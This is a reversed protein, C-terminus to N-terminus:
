LGWQQGETNHRFCQSAHAYGWRDLYKIAAEQILTSTTGIWQFFEPGNLLCGVEGLTLGTEGQQSILSPRGRGISEKGDMLAVSCTHCVGKCKRRGQRYGQIGQVTRSPTGLSKIGLRFREVQFARQKCMSYSIREWM